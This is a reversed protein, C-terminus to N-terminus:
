VRNRYEALDIITAGPEDPSEAWYPRGLDIAWIALEALHKEIPHAKPTDAAVEIASMVNDISKLPTGGPEYRQLTRILTDYGLLPIPPTERHKAEHTFRALRIILSGMTRLKNATKDGAWQTETWFVHDRDVQESM